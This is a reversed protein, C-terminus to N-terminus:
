EALPMFIKRFLKLPFSPAKYVRINWFMFKGRAREQETQEGNELVKVCGLTKFGLTM